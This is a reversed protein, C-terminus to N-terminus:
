KKERSLFRSIAVAALTMATGSVLYSTLKARPTPFAWDIFVAAVLQGTVSFLIFNLIGLHKVVHASVAIYAVGCMGGAYLWWQHPFANIHAGTLQNVGLAIALVFTGMMFNILATSLPEQSVENVRGNIAQQFAVICGVILGLILPLFKFSAKGLDPFVSVTVALLIAVAVFVRVPSIAQKGRPSIGLKDVLLSALTQGGISTISFLAVGIQPVTISQVAVFFGGGMGGIVQWPKLQGSRLSHIVRALASRKGQSILNVTTLVILGSGFSVIAAMLGNGLVHSLQGNIRSQTATLMGVIFALLPFM